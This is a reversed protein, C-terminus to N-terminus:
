VLVRKVTNKVEFVRTVEDPNFRLENGVKLFPIRKQSTMKYLKDKKIQFM